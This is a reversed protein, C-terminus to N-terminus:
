ERRRYAWVKLMPMVRPQDIQVVELEVNYEPYLDALMETHVDDMAERDEETASGHFYCIVSVVKDHWGVTVGRLAPSIAGLLARQLYLLLTMRLEQEDQDATM